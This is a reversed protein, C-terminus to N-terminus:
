MDQYMSPTVFTIKIEQSLRKLHKAILMNRENAEKSFDYDLQKKYYDSGAKVGYGDMGALLIEKAGVDRLIGILMLGSNDIVLEEPLSYSAFNIVYDASQKMNSTIISKAKTKGQMKSFRRMNSSFVYDPNYEDATFSVSIGIADDHGLLEKIKDSYSSISSGPALVLVKKGEIGERLKELAKRDDIYNNLYEQYYKEAIEKKFTLKDKPTIGRLIEHFGKESLTGKDAFYIAYNPHCGLSASLYFPLSYGWQRIKYFDTLYEDMIELMPEIRYNTGFNDNMHEAFLELNLNGAGRGMGFVCCDICIDRSLNMDLLAEANGFAQQMNNHAHYCLTIGESMNTDAIQCLHIFQKRKIVGFTDVICMGMPKLENYKRIGQIFEEDSYQDTGVFNVCLLYGQEQIYRCYEFAENIKDKKFIVRIGDITDETRKKINEFPVPASMDLMGFYLLDKSRNELVRKCEDTTPFVSKDPDYEQGKIFGIEVMEIGTMSLKRIISKIGEGTFKWDNIYGGDRLTCDLLYVKNM